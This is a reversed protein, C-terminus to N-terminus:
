LKGKYILQTTFYERCYSNIHATSIKAYKCLARINIMYTGTYWFSHILTKLPNFRHMNLPFFQFNTTFLWFQDATLNTWIVNISHFKCPIIFKILFTCPVLWRRLGLRWNALKIKVKASKTWTDCCDM